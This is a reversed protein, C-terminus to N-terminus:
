KLSIEFHTDDLQTITYTSILMLEDLVTQLPQNNYRATITTSQMAAEDQPKLRINVEYYNGIDAIAQKLLTRDFVLQRSRWADFNEGTTNGTTFQNFAFLANEGAKVMVKNIGASFNVRGTRVFLSVQNNKSNVLFSTGVVQVRTSAASIIFPKTADPRVEFFAEGTLQVHRNNKGYDKDYYFTAGKRLYVTSGDKMSIKQTGNQATITRSPGAPFFIFWGGFLVIIAAAVMAAKKSFLLNIITAGKGKQLKTNVTHWAKGTDFAEQQQEGSRKWLNELLKFDAANEESAAAWNKVTDSEEASAQGSFYKGLLSHIDRQM